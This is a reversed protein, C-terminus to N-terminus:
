GRGKLSAALRHRWGQIGKVIYLHEGPEVYGLQRAERELAAVSSSAALRRVLTRKQAELARVQARRVDLSHRTGFYARLPHVYLLAVLALAGVAAWRRM